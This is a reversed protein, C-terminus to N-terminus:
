DVQGTQLADYLGDYGHYVFDIELGLERGIARALDVDIGHLEGTDGNEFPPFTPDLGVRIRGSAAISEWADEDNAGCGSTFFTFTFVSIAILFIKVSKSLQTGGKALELNLAMGNPREATTTLTPQAPWLWVSTKNNRM